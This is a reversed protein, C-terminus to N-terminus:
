VKISYDLWFDGGEFGQPLSSPEQPASDPSPTPAGKIKVWDSRVIRSKTREDLRQMLPVRPISPWPKSQTSVMAAFKGESMKELAAKPTANVSGHHSIKLFNIRPLIDEPQEHELWWRWNGYQADGSFLLYQGRFVFLTVLSENNRAQDLAFALENIPSSTADELQKEEQATLPAKAAGVSARDIRWAATFPQIANAAEVEGGAGLRLYHQGAPPDMQALFEESQPPGLVRVSLGAIAVRRRSNKAAGSSLTDGAKLYRVNSTVGFGSKLLAIAHANGRLNEVANGVKKDIKKPGAAALASVHESLQETLAAQKKQLKLAVKNKPDWTWPLWVEGIEFTSFVDGFKDFGSIHDQHAHTAIIVALKKGTVSAINDVIKEMTGINGQSHVGCDILLHHHTAGEHTGKAVPLSVLFCDGFGIRYMRVRISDDALDGTGGAALANPAGDSKNVAPRRNRTTESAAKSKAGRSASDGTAM